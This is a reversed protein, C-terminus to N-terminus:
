RLRNKKYHEKTAKYGRQSNKSDSFTFFQDIRKRYKEEMDADSEIYRVLTSVASEYDDCVPGFGEKKYDFLQKMVSGHKSFFTESDFQTHIIPKRLYSFDFLTNSYDTVFVRSESFMKNYDYPFDMIVVNDSDTTFDDKNAIHNPHIYYKLTYNNQKLAKTIRKDSILRQYFQFYDSDLFKDSRGRAGDKQESALWSRWTPFLAIIRKDKSDDVLEDYRPLGTVPVQDATYGYTGDILHKQEWDCASLFINANKKQKGIYNSLDNLVIGHQTHAIDYQMLGCYKRWVGFWPYLYMMDMHSPLIVESVIALYLHKVSKFGVVNYGDAKLRKYAPTDKNIAYYPKIDADEQDSVFRFLVESNDGGSISRDSFLWVRSPRMRINILAAIRVLEIALTKLINHETRYKNKLLNQLFFLVERKIIKHLKFDTITLSNGGPLLLLKGKVVRYDNQRMSIRSATDYAIDLQRTKGSGNEKLEVTLKGTKELPVIVKFGTKEVIKDDFMGTNSDQLQYPLENGDLYFGLSLGFLDPSCLPTSGEIILGDKKIFNITGVTFRVDDLLLTRLSRDDEIAKKIKARNNKYKAYLLAMKQRLNVNVSGKILIDDDLARIGDLVAEKYEVWEQDSLIDPKKNQTIRWRYHYLAHFQMFQPVKGDRSLKKVDKSLFTAYRRTSEYFSRRDKATDSASVEDQRKRYYFEAERVLGYRYVGGKVLVTDIFKADENHTMNEDFAVDNLYKANFVISSVLSTITNPEKELDIVRTDTFKYDAAHYSDKADFWRVRAAAFPIEPNDSLMNCMLQLYDPAFKDDSDLFAVYKGEAHKLGNNRAASVGANDQKIYTINKPYRKQYDLCIQESDDPSGDNVLLVQLNKFGITQAIVSEITEALYKEVKYVPIIISAKFSNKGSKKM